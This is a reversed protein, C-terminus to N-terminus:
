LTAIWNRLLSIGADGSKEPHFQTSWLAGDEVAAVFRDEGYSTWATLPTGGASAAGLEDDHAAYSHVFYFRQDGIGAFMASSPAASVTNWGMHPLVRADVTEVAGPYIGLGPTSRGHEAGHAYMVQHGVCIAFVPRGDGLREKVVRPGDVSTLSAMCAAFAGVGPIVVGDAEIAAEASSSVHVSGGARDLAREGSRVNGSGYDFLVIRPKV